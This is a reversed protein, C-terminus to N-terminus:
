PHELYKIEKGHAEAYEIESRTSEGIYGNINIVFVEDALDIKRKHLEDMLEKCGQEEARHHSKGDCTDPLINWHLTLYGMKAFAWSTLLMEATFRTSGCFCIIKPRDIAESKDGNAPQSLLLQKIEDVIKLFL